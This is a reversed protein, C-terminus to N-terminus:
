INITEQFPKAAQLMLGIRSGVNVELFRLINNLKGLEKIPM